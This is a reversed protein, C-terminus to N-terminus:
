PAWVTICHWLGTRPARSLALLTNLGFLLHVYLCIVLFASLLLAGIAIWTYRSQKPTPETWQHWVAEHMFPCVSMAHCVCAYVCLVTCAYTVFMVCVQLLHVSCIHCVSAVPTHLLVVCMQLLHIYCVHCICTVPAHFLHSVCKCCTYAIFMVCVQLLHIYCIHCM